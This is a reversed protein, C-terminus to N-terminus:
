GEVGCWVEAEEEAHGLVLGEARSVETMGGFARCAGGPNLNTADGRGDTRRMVERTMASAVMVAM